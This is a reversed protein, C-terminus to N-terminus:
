EVAATLLSEVEDAVTTAQRAQAEAYVFRGAASNVSAATAGTDLRQSGDRVRGIAPEVFRIRFRSNGELTSEIQEVAAQRQAELEDAPPTEDFQGAEIEDVVTEMTSLATRRLGAEIVARAYSSEGIADLLNGNSHERAVDRAVNFWVEAPTGSVDRGLADSGNEIYRELRTETLRARRRLWTATAMMAPRYSAGDAPVQGRFQRADTLLAQARVVKGVIYGVTDPDGTAEDPFPPYPELERAVNTLMGELLRHRFVAREPDRGRYEHDAVFDSRASRVAERRRRLTARDIEGTAARYRGLLEAADVRNQRWEFLRRHPPSREDGDGAARDDGGGDGGDEGSAEEVRDSLAARDNEIESATAENPLSVSEPVRELLAATRDRHFGIMSETVSFPYSYSHDPVPREAIARLRQEDYESGTSLASCGALTALTGGAASLAGRRTIESRM